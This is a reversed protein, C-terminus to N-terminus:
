FWSFRNTEDVNEIYEHGVDKEVGAKLANDVKSKISDYDGRNLLEVSEIIAKKIEQNKCFELAKEKVFDLDNAELERFAQKINDAVSKKLLDNDIEIIKVKMAEITPLTNYEKFYDKIIDLIVINAESEFYSSDLIDLIQQLFQRDKFLLAILKIQFSYGFDSLKNVNM